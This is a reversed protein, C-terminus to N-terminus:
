PHTSTEREGLIGPNLVDHPDYARKVGRSLHDGVRTPALVPWLDAPLREFVRTGDFPTDALAAGLETAPAPPVVCRAVGRGVSAHVMAMAFPRVLRLAQTWTDALRAPLHSLRVVAAGPPECARLRAWVDAPVAVADGLAALATRQAGVLEENGDLRVLLASGEGVALRAALTPSVLELALPAIPARRVAALLAAGREPATPFPLAVTEDVESLARLRVTVETIAGLTGWSGVLLRTLDFGAVNKVVRGGGRVVAGAGTVFELGLVNDRPLGFAHAIPGASATAVTAGITGGADGFPDLALWQGELRTARDIESLPTGAQATLTLDGPTYEVIGALAAMPLTAAAQVPRGADLWTGAGVIRLPTRTAAAVRVADAIAATGVAPRPPATTTM